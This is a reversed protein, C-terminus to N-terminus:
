VKDHSQRIMEEVEEDPLTDDLIMTIWHKKNMHYGPYYGERKTLEPIHEPAAKVNLLEFEEKSDSRSDFRMRPVSGIFAYWKRSKPNRYVGFSPYKEWMFEPEDGFTQRIFSDMREAQAYRYSRQTCCKNRIATLFAKYAELVRGSFEGLIERRFLRYEEGTARDTVEGRFTGNYTVCVQMDGEGLDAVYRLAGEEDRFGYDRLKNEDTECKEFVKEEITMKETVDM